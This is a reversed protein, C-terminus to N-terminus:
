ATLMLVMGAGGAVASIIWFRMVITHEPWGIAQFHHHIPTSQFLKKKFLKKSTMQLLVSGSEVVLVLGILPLVLASNTLLAIIALMVGMSMSGTDGMFFKAPPVNFWVFALLAGVIVAILVTLDFREQIFAIVGLSIFSTGVIGGALGDLGDTENVSFSTAVIVLIVFPFYWLGIFVDGVFPVAVTDFELKFTFWWAVIAAIITYLTLRRQVSMGGKSHFSDLVDDAIGIFAAAFLAGLPVYTDKRSLFDLDRLPIDVSSITIIVEPFLRGVITFIATLFLVTGWIVVGGMTPTGEKHKHLDTYIPTSGDKRIRKEIRYKKLIRLVSFTLFLAIIFSLSLFAIVRGLEFPDIVM